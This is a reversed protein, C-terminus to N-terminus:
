SHNAKYLLTLLSDGLHVNEVNVDKHHLKIDFHSFNLFNKVGLEILEECAEVAAKKPICLVAIKPQNGKCFGSLEEMSKIKHGAVSKGHLKSDIDFVGILECGRREFGMGDCIAQGIKGAGIVIVKSSKELGIIHAIEQRLIEVNYGYGQVGFGGFCNL